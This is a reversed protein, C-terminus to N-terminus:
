RMFNRYDELFTNVVHEADERSLSCLRPSVDAVDYFYRVYNLVFGDNERGDGYKECDFVPFHKAQDLDDYNIEEGNKLAEIATEVKHRSFEVQRQADPLFNWNDITLPERGLLRCADEYGGIMATTIKKEM